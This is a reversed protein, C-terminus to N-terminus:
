LNGGLVKQGTPAPSGGFPEVTVGFSPYEVLPLVSIVVMAGYGNTDVSFVGGSTRKGDKILWLQYQRTADLAPLGDVVLTGAKGEDTIVMLGSADQGAQTGELHVIRYGLTPTPKSLQQVQQGLRFNNIGLALILILSGPQTLQLARKALVKGVHRIIGAETLGAAWNAKEWERMQAINIVPLSM